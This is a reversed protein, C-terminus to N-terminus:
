ASFILSRTYLFVGSIDINEPAQYSSVRSIKSQMVLSRDILEFEFNIFKLMIM